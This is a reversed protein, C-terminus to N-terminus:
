FNQPSTLYDSSVSPLVLTGWLLITDGWAYQCPLTGSKVHHDEMSVLCPSQGSVALNRSLALPKMSFASPSIKM